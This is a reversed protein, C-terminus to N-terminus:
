FEWSKPWTSVPPEWFCLQGGKGVLSINCSVSALLFTWAWFSLRYEGEEHSGHSVHCHSIAFLLFVWQAMQSFWQCSVSKIAKTLELVSFFDKLCLYSWSYLILLTFYLKWNVLVELSNDFLTVSFNSM